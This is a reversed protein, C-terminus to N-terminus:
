RDTLIYQLKKKKEVFTLKKWEPWYIRYVVWGLDNLYKDRKIDHEVIRLDLKHQSGDIEIDIKNIPDAFDLEYTGIRYKFELEIKENEFLEKFYQEPYSIKSSHNLLYPVKDPNEKLFKKRAKSIKERTETSHKKGLWGNGTIKNPNLKCRIVHGGLKRGDDFEKGCFKCVTFSGNGKFRDSVGQSM